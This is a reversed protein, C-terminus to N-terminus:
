FRNLNRFYKEDTKEPPRWTDAPPSPATEVPEFRKTEPAPAPALVPASFKGTRETNEATFGPIEWASGRTELSELFPNPRDIIGTSTPLRAQGTIRTTPSTGRADWSLDGLLTSDGSIPNAGPLPLNTQSLERIAASDESLWGAMFSELPNHAEQALARDANESESQQATEGNASTEGMLQLWFDASGGAPTQEDPAALADESSADKNEAAEMDRLGALLWNQAAWAKEAEEGSLSDSLPPAAGELGDEILLPGRPILDGGQGDSSAPALGREMLEIDVIGQATAQLVDRREAKEEQDSAWLTGATLM